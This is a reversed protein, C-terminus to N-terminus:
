SKQIHPKAAQWFGFFGSRALPMYREDWARRHWVMSIGHQQLDLALQQLSSREFGIRPLM